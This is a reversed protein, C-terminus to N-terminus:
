PGPRWRRDSSQAGFSWVVLMWGWFSSRVCIYLCYVIFTFVVVCNNKGSDPVMGTASSYGAGAATLWPKLCHVSVSEYTSEQCTQKNMVVNRVIRCLLWQQQSSGEVGPSTYHICFFFCCLKPSPYLGIECTPEFNTWGM